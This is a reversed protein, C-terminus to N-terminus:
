DFHFIESLDVLIKLDTGATSIICNANWNTLCMIKVSVVANFIGTTVLCFTPYVSFFINESPM